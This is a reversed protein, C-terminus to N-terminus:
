FCKLINGDWNFFASTSFHFNADWVDFEENFKNNLKQQLDHTKFVTM